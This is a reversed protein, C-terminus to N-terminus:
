STQLAKIINTRSALWAPYCSSLASAILATACAYAYAKTNFVIYATYGSSMGPPAEMAIGGSENICWAVLTGTLMGLVAGVFGMLVGEWLFGQLIGLPTQGIARLTGIERFREFASMSLTNAISLFVVIGLVIAALKFLNSYLNVVGQYYEALDLWTKYEYDPFDILTTSVRQEVLPMDDTAHALVLMREVSRTDLLQQLLPLQLKVYVDDYDKSMTKVIGVLTCDVANVSGDITTSLITLM